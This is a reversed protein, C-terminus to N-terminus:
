ELVLMQYEVYKLFLMEVLMYFHCSCTYMSYHKSTMVNNSTFGLYADCRKELLSDKMGIGITYVDKRKLFEVLTLMTQHNGSLSIVFFIDKQEVHLLTTDLEADGQIVHMIIGAYVFARKLEQATLYQVEGSAYVYIRKATHIASLVEDINEDMFQLTEKMKYLSTSLIDKQIEQTRQNSWKMYVKLESYGDLGIKKAFRTITTHSVNCEKALEQISLKRCHEMHYYIYQWIYLDIENLNEYQAYVLEELTM